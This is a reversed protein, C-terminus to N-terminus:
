ILPECVERQELPSICYLRTINDYESLPIIENNDYFTWTGTGFNPKVRHNWVRYHWVPIENNDYNKLSGARQPRSSSSNLPNKSARPNSVRPIQANCVTTWLSELCVWIMMLDEAVLMTAQAVGNRARRAERILTIYSDTNKNTSIESRDLVM